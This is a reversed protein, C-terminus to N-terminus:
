NIAILEIEFILDAGAPIINGVARSGYALAAPIYVRVKQGVQMNLVMKDWGQIVQGVGVHFVFPKNRDVSSDFKKGPKGNENLWGTYHVSVSQSKIPTKGNSPAQSITEFEIGGIKTRSPTTESKEQKEPAAPAVLPITKKKHDKAALQYTSLATILVLPFIKLSRRPAKM